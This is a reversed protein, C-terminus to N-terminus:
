LENNFKKKFYEEPTEALKKYDKMRRNIDMEKFGYDSYIVVDPNNKGWYIRALRFCNDRGDRILISIENGGGYCFVNGSKYKATFEVGFAEVCLEKIAKKADSCIGPIAEIKEELKEPTCKLM